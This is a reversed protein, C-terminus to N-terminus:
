NKVGTSLNTITQALSSKIKADVESAISRADTHGHINNIVSVNFSSNSNKYANQAKIIADSSVGNVANNSYGAILNNAKNVTIASEMAKSVVSGGGDNTISRKNSENVDTFNLGIKSDLFDILQRVPEFAKIIYDRINSFVSKLKVAVKEWEAILTATVSKKGHAYSWFDQAILLVSSWLALLRALLPLVSSIVGGAVTLGSQMMPFIRSVVSGIGKFISFITLLGKSVVGGAIAYGIAKVLESNSSFGRIIETVKTAVRSLTPMVNTAIAGWLDGFSRKLVALQTNYELARQYSERTQTNYKEQGQILKEIKESYLTILTIQDESFGANALLMHRKAPDMGKTKYHLEKYLTMQSKTGGKEDFPSVGLLSLNKIFDTNMGYRLSQMTDSFKVASKLADDYSGGLAEVATAYGKIEGTTQNTNRATSGALLIGSVSSSVAKSTLSLAGFATFVKFLSGTVERTTSNFRKLADTANSFDKITDKTSDNLNNLSDSSDKNVKKVGSLEKKFKKVDETANKASAEVVIRIKKIDM